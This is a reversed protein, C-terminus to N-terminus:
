KNIQIFWCDNEVKDPNTNFYAKFAKNVGEWAKYDHGSMISGNKMKPYWAQIDALVAEFSHGADIFIADVTNDEFNSAAKDSTSVIVEFNDKLHNTSNLFDEYINSINVKSYAIIEKEDSIESVGGFTDITYFNINRKRNLIETVIFSTSKGKYAGLEVFIGNEPTKDLLEIYQKEMNFWGEVNKYNHEIM